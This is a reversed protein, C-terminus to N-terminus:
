VQPRLLDAIAITRATREVSCSKYPDLCLLQYLPKRYAVLAQKILETRAEVLENAPMNLHKCVSKDSYYSLGQADSVVALFLYLAQASRHCRCLHEDSILRQDLWSFRQPLHRLRAPDIPYKDM